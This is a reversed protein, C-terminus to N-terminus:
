TFLRNISRIKRLQKLILLGIFIGLLDFLTDKLRGSRGLIFTQHIEDSLAYLYAVILTDKKRLLAYFILIALLAYELIHLTKFFIFRPLPDAVVGDTPGSSFYYIVGM